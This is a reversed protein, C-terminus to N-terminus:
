CKKTYEKVLKGEKIATALHQFIEDTVEFKESVLVKVEKIDIDQGYRLRLANNVAESDIDLITM